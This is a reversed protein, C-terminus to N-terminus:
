EEIAYCADSFEYMLENFKETNFDYSSDNAKPEFTKIKNYLTNIEPVINNWIEKVKTYKEDTLSKMYTDYESFKEMLKDAETVVKSYSYTGGVSDTGTGIYWKTENIANNWIDIIFNNVEQIKNTESNGMNELDKLSKRFEEITINKEKMHKKGDQILEKITMGYMSSYPDEALLNSFAYQLYEYTLYCVEDSDEGKKDCYEKMTEEINEKTLKKHEIGIDFYSLLYNVPNEKTKVYIGLCFGGVVLIILLVIAVIVKIFKKM